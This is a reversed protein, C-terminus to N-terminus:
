IENPKLVAHAFHAHGMHLVRYGTAAALSAIEDDTFAHEFGTDGLRDGDIRLQSGPARQLLARLWTTLGALRGARPALEEYSLLVPGRPCLRQVSQLLRLRTVADVCYSFSGFGLIIADYTQAQWLTDLATGTVATTTGEMATVLEEYGGLAVPASVQAEDLHDRLADLLRPVPEFGAVEFGMEALALMERGGGAGGVLVRAPPRPFHRDVAEREWAFLGTARYAPERYFDARRSYTDATISRWRRDSVYALAVEDRLACFACYLRDVWHTVRLWAPSEPSAPIFAV